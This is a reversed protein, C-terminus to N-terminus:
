TIDRLGSVRRGRILTAYPSRSKTAVGVLRWVERPTDTRRLGVREGPRLHPITTPHVRAYLRTVLFCGIGEELLPEDLLPTNGSFLQTVHRNLLDEVLHCKVGRRIPLIKTISSSNEGGGHSRAADLVGGHPRIHLVSRIVRPLLH